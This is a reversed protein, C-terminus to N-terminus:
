ITWEWHNPTTPRVLTLTKRARTSAVYQVRLEDGRDANEWVRKPVDSLVAVHDAELGKSRHVTLIRVRGPLTLSEGNRRLGRIYATDEPDMLTLVEWWAKAHRDASPGMVHDWVCTEPLSKVDATARLEPPLAQYLYKVEGREVGKGRRLADYAGAARVAPLKWSWDGHELTYVVGQQKALRRWQALQYNTRALLLWEGSRLDVADIDTVTKVDGTEGNSTFIKPHRGHIPRVVADALHKIRSPLRYSHPLVTRDAKLTLLPRPDSGSWGYIAQDDDGAIVVRAGKPTVRRVLSWQAASTDQAEDLFVWDVPLEGEARRVMDPYDWLGNAYKFAEYADILKDVFGFTLDRYQARRWEDELGTGRARAQAWIELALDAPYGRGPSSPPTDWAGTHADVEKFPESIITGFEKLHEVQLVDLRSLECLKFGLSHITRFWPLADRPYSVRSMAEGVAARSFSLYAIREPSIRKQEVLDGLRNLLETTKGTGPPGFLIEVSQAM